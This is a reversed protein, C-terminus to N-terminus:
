RQVGQTIISLQRVLATVLIFDVAVFSRSMVKKTVIQAAVSLIAYSLFLWSLIQILPAAHGERVRPHIGPIPNEELSM